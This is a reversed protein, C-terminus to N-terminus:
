MALPQRAQAVDEGAFLGALEDRRVADGDVRTTINIDAFHGPGDHALAQLRRPFQAAQLLQLLQILLRNEGCLVCLSWVIGFKTTKTGEHHSSSATMCLLIM